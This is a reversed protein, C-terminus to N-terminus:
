SRYNLKWLKKGELEGPEKALWLRHTKKPLDLSIIIEDRLASSSFSLTLDNPKVSKNLKYDGGKGFSFYWDKPNNEDQFFVALDDATIDLKKVTGASIAIQGNASFRIYEGKSNSTTVVM